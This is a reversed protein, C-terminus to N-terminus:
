TLPRSNTEVVNPKRLIFTGDNNDIWELIDNEKWGAQELLDDPLNIVYDEEDDSVEVPLIWKVVRDVTSKPTEEEWFSNWAGECEPSTDDKNCSLIKDVCDDYAKIHGKGNGNLLALLEYAQSTHHKHYHYNEEVVGKIVDYIDQPTAEGASMADHMWEELKELSYKKYNFDTM